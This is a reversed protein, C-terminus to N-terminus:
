DLSTKALPMVSNIRGCGGSANGVSTIVHWFSEPLVGCIDYAIAESIVLERTSIMGSSCCRPSNSSGAANRVGISSM